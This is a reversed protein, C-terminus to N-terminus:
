VIELIFNYDSTLYHADVSDDGSIYKTQMIVMNSFTIIDFLKEVIEKFMTLPPPYVYVHECPLICIYISNVSVDDVNVDMIAIISKRRPIIIYHTSLRELFECAM